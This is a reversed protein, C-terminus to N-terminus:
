ANEGAPPALEEEPATRPASARTGAEDDVSKPPPKLVQTAASGEDRSASGNLHAVSADGEATMPASADEPGNPTAPETHEAAMSSSGQNGDVLSSFEVGDILQIPRNAVLDEAQLTFHGTTVVYGHTAEWTTMLDLLPRVPQDSVMGSQWHYLALARKGGKTLLLAHETESNISSVEYGRLAFLTRVQAAFHEPAPLASGAQSVQTLQLPAHSVTPAPSLMDYPATQMPAYGNMPLLPQTLPVGGPALQTAGAPMIPSTGGQGRIKEFVHV